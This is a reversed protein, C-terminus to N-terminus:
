SESVLQRVIDHDSKELETATGFGILRGRDLVAIHDGVRRAGRVDHTVIVLTARYEKKVKLLLDDIESATIRDLGSSPEDVLILKPRLVLARALGARKRMGGSLEAPMKAKDLDLGVQELAEDVAREIESPSKSKDLRRLPLALNDGLTFSDFLAASQFLFGMHRRVRSLDEESSHSIDESDICVKGSDPKLLGIMLKLTVSKGTGSRGMICLAEGANVRFSVDDLVKRNGFTKFVREFEVAAKDNM